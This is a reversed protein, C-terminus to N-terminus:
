NIHRENKLKYVLQKTRNRIEILENIEEDNMFKFTNKAEEDLSRTIGYNTNIYYKIDSAISTLKNIMIENLVTAIKENEM